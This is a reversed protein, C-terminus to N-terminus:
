VRLPLQFAPSIFKNTFHNDIHIEMRCEISIMKATFDTVFIPFLVDIKMRKRVPEQKFDTPDVIEAINSIQVTQTPDHHNIISLLPFHYKSMATVPKIMLVLSAALLFVAVNVPLKRRLILFYM